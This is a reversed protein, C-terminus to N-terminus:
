SDDYRKQLNKGIKLLCRRVDKPELLEAGGGFSLIWCIISEYDTFGSSFMLKGDKQEEFSDIGYEEILRWKFRPDIIAKVDYKAPFVREESLNPTSVERREFVDDMKLETMRNLKFLRFSERNCCWGYVYWSSWHFILYYPEVIRRSEGKPSFYRFSVKRKLDIASHIMEIKPPLSNKHWSSLDILIHQDGALIGSNGASLKEMLQVYRNTKSVSDLSRLGALISRMEDPTLLARDIKYGDPISIGGNKGQTTMIPIGAKCLEEVDRMITRRSVEFKKALYPASVREHQLLISLIGIMRYIKM